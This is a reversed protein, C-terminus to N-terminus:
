YKFCYGELTLNLRSFYWKCTFLLTGQIIHVWAPVHVLRAKLKLNVFYLGDTLSDAVQTLIPSALLLFRVWSWFPAKKDWFEQKSLIVRREDETKVCPLRSKDVNSNVRTEKTPNSGLSSLDFIESSFDFM